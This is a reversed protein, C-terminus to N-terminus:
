TDFAWDPKNPLADKVNGWEVLDKSKTVQINIEGSIDRLQTAYAYYFGNSSKIVCPDAFDYNYVPNKYKLAPAYSIQM